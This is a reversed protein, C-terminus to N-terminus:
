LVECHEAAGHSMGDIMDLGKGSWGVHCRNTEGGVLQGAHTRNGLLGIERMQDDLVGGILRADLALAELQIEPAKTVPWHEGLCECGLDSALDHGRCLRVM